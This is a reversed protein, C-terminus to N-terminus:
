NKRTVYIDGKTLKGEINRKLLALFDEKVTNPNNFNDFKDFKKEQVDPLNIDPYYNDLSATMLTDNYIIVPMGTRIIKKEVAESIKENDTRVCGHSVGYGFNNSKVGLPDPAMYQKDSRWNKIKVTDTGNGHLGISRFVPHDLRCFYPGYAKKGAFTNNQSPMISQIKFMGEPTKGDGNRKKDGYRLATACDLEYTSDPTYLTAKQFTKNIVMVTGDYNDGLYKKIQKENEIERRKKFFPNDQFKGEDEISYHNVLWDINKLINKDKYFDDNKVNESIIARIREPGSPMDSAPAYTTNMYTLSAIAGVCLLNKSDNWINIISKKIGM